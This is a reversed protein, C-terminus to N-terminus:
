VLSLQLEVDEVIASKKREDHHLILFGDVEQQKVGNPTVRRTVM